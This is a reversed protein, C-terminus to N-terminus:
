LIRIVLLIRFIILNGLNNMKKWRKLLIPNEPIEYKLLARGWIFPILSFIMTLGM